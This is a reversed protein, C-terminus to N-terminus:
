STATGFRRAVVNAIRVRLEREKALAHGHQRVLEPLGRAEDRECAVMADGIAADLAFVDSVFPALEDHLGKDYSAILALQGTMLPMIEHAEKDYGATLAPNVRERARADWTLWCMSHLLRAMSTTLGQLATRLENDLAKRADTELKINEVTRTSDALQRLGEQFDHKTALSEGRRKAYAGFYAAALGGAASILSAALVLWQSQDRGGSLLKYVVTDPQV